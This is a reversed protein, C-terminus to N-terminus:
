PFASKIWRAEIEYLRPLLHKRFEGAHGALRTKGLCLKRIFLLVGAALLEEGAHLGDNQPRLQQGDEIREIGLALASARGDPQLEHQADIEELM